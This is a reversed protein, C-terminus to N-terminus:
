KGPEDAPLEVPYHRGFDASTSVRRWAVAEVIQRRSFDQAADVGINRLLIPLNGRAVRRQLWQTARM